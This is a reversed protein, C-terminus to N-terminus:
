DCLRRQFAAVHYPREAQRWRSLVISAPQHWFDLCRRPGRASLNPEPFLLDTVRPRHEVASPAGYLLWVEGLSIESPIVIHELVSRQMQTFGGERVFDPQQGSWDWHVRLHGPAIEALDVRSVWPHTLLLRAIEDPDTFGPRVGMFCPAECDPSSAFFARVEDFYAADYAALRVGGVLVASILLLAGLGLLTLRTM